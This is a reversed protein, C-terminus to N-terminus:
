AVGVVGYAAYKGGPVPVPSASRLITRLHNFDAQEALTVCGESRGTAGKPHLRFNGRAVGNCFMSDDVNGDTAYLAFWENRGTLRDKIAGLRGGSERDLIYYAGPPIPGMGALCASARKNVNTGLGSFAPFSFAGMKLASMPQDNLLFTCQFM